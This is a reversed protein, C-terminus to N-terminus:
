PRKVAYGDADHDLLGLRVLEAHLARREEREGGRSFEETTINDLRVLLAAALRALESNAITSRDREVWVAADITDSM